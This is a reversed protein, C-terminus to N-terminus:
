SLVYFMQLNAPQIVFVLDLHWKKVRIVRAEVNLVEVNKTSPKLEKFHAKPVNVNALALQQGIDMKHVVVYMLVNCLVCLVELNM